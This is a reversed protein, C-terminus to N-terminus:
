GKSICLYLHYHILPKKFFMPSASKFVITARSLFYLGQLIWSWVTFPSLRDFHKLLVSRKSNDLNLVTVTFGVKDIVISIIIFWVTCACLARLFGFILPHLSALNSKGLVDISLHAWQIDQTQITYTSCALIIAGLLAVEAFGM